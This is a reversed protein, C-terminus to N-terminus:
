AFPLTLPRELPDRRLHDVMAERIVPGIRKWQARRGPHIRDLVRDLEFPWFAKPDVPTRIGGTFAFSLRTLNTRSMNLQQAVRSFVPKGVHTHHDYVWWPWDAPEHNDTPPTTPPLGTYSTLALFGGILAMTRDGEMGGKIAFRNMCARAIKRARPNELGNAKDLVARCVAEDGHANGYALMRTLSDWRRKFPQQQPGDYKRRAHLDLLVLLAYTSHDKASLCLTKLFSQVTTQLWASRDKGAALIDEVEGAYQWVEEMALIPLRWLLWSTDMEWLIAFATRLM